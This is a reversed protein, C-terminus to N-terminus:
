GVAEFRSRAQTIQARKAQRLVFPMMAPSGM